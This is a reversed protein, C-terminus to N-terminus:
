ASFGTELQIMMRNLDAVYEEMQRIGEDGLHAYRRQSGVYDRVTSKRM